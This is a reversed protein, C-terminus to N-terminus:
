FRLELSVPTIIATCDGANGLWNVEVSDITGAFACVSSSMTYNAYASTGAYPRDLTGSNFSTATFIYIQPDGVVQFDVGILGTWSGVGSLFINVSGNIVLAQGASYSVGNSQYLYIPSGVTPRYSDGARIIFTITGTGRQALALTFTQSSGADGIDVRATQDTLGGVPENIKLSWSM